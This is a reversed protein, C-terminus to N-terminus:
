AFQRGLDIDFQAAHGAFIHLPFVGPVRQLGGRQHVLYKEFQHIRVIHIPLIFRVEERNGGIHHAADQHVPCASFPSLFM